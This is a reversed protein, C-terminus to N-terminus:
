QESECLPASIAFYATLSALFSLIFWWRVNNNIVGFRERWNCVSTAGCYEIVLEKNRMLVNLISM